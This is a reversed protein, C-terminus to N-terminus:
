GIRRRRIRLSRPHKTSSAMALLATLSLCTSTSQSITARVMQVTFSTLLPVIVDPKLSYSEAMGTVHLSSDNMKGLPVVALFSSVIIVRKVSKEAKAANLMSETGQVAPAVYDAKFDSGKGPMPSALHFIYDVGALSGDFADPKTIDPIVVFDLKDAHAAFLSKLKQIQEQKRVSLRVRHGAKLAASVVQSGIFGTSGTIFILHSSMATTSAPRSLQTLLKQLRSQTPM